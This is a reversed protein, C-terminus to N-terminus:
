LHISAAVAVIVVIMAFAAILIQAEPMMNVSKETEGPVWKPNNRVVWDIWKEHQLMADSKTVPMTQCEM